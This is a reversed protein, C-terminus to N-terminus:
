IDELKGKLRVKINNDTNSANTSSSNNNPQQLNNNTNKKVTVPDLNVQRSERMARELKLALDEEHSNRLNTVVEIAKIRENNSFYAMGLAFYVNPNPSLDNAKAFFKIARPPNAKALLYIWGLNILSTTSNPDIKLAKEFYELAKDYNGTAYYMRGINEYGQIFNPDYKIALLFYKIAEDYDDDRAKFALGLGNYAPAFNPALTILQNYLEISDDFHQTNYADVAKEYIQQIPHEQAHTLIPAVILVILLFFFFSVKNHQLPM